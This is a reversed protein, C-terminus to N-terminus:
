DRKERAKRVAGATDEDWEMMQVLRNDLIDMVSDREDPNGDLELRRRYAQQKVHQAIQQSRPNVQLAREGYGLLVIDDMSQARSFAVYGLGPTFCNSLDMQVADFTQGQSKHVTIAYGLKLPFQSIAATISDLEVVTGDDKTFTEKKTSAYDARELSVLSGNNLRVTVEYASMSAVKGVSGNAALLEGDPTYTNNTVIVTADVKLSLSELVRREKMLKEVARSDGTMTVVQYTKKPNPNDELKEENYRDVNSNTTFLTTYTKNPDMGRDMCEQLIQHAAADMTGREICRLLHILRKDKARRVKDLYAYKINGNKWADSFIAFDHSVDPKPQRPAVPPLQLFDGLMVVQIGGFPESSRRIHKCVKDLNDLYYAPLMSIEDIILVDTYKVQDWVRFLSVKQDGKRPNYNGDFIGLGSWAHITRGNILSAAMGTSATIAVMFRGEYEADLWDIFRQIVHTKGSGAPGSLFLNERHMLRALAEAQTTCKSDSFSEDLSDYGMFPDDRFGVLTEQRRAFTERELKALRSGAM